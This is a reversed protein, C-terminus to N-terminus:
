TISIICCGARQGGVYRFDPQVRDVRRPRQAAPHHRAGDPDAAASHDAAAARPQDERRVAAVRGARGLAHRHAGPGGVDPPLGQALRAHRGPRGGRPVRPGVSRAQRAAHAVQDRVLRPAAGAAGGGGGEVVTALTDAVLVTQSHWRLNGFLPLRLTTEDIRKALGPMRRWPKAFFLAGVAVAIVPVVWVAYTSAALTLRTSAPLEAGATTLTEAFRPIVFSSLFWVSLISGALLIAPYTLRSGVTRRIERRTRVSRDILALAHLLKGSAMGVKLVAVIQDDCLGPVRTVSEALDHGSRLGARVSAAAARLRPKPAIEEITAVAEEVPLRAEMLTYMTQFFWAQDGGRLREHRSWQLLPLFPNAPRIDLPILGQERLAERAASEDPHTAVGSQVQGGGGASAKLAKYVFQAM